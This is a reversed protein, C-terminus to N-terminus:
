ANARSFERAGDRVLSRLERPQEVSISLNGRRIIGLREIVKLAANVSGRGLDAMSALDSQSV